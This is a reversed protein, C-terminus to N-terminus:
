VKFILNPDEILRQNIQILSCKVGLKICYESGDECKICCLAASNNLNQGGKSDNCCTNSKCKQMTFLIEM